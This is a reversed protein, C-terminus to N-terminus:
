HKKGDTFVTVHTTLGAILKRDPTSDIAIRVPVRQTVKVWNGTANQAPLVSFESGTGAGISAVHGRVKMDPYADFKIEAPQGVRMDALQTEKYNAEVYAGRVGVLTLMPVNQVVLQGPLLREAGAIEGAMPARVVTRSLNLRAAEAQAKAAAIQPNEGPIAAGHALKAQAEAESAQAAQLEAQGQEVAHKAADYAAKTTFGDKWLEQQRQFNSQAFAIDERAKAADAGSLPAANALATVNAQASAIAATAQDLQIQFPQPDIKFLLDGAKVPDGNKVYVQLIKGGVEASISVKDQKVYADDTSVKGQLGIWYIAGGILIALPVVLMLALRGWRRRPAGDTEIVTETGPEGPEHVTAPAEIKPDADAM